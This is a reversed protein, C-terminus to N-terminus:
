PLGLRAIMLTASAPCAGQLQHSAHLAAPACCREVSSFGHQSFFDAAATTLLYLRDIGHSRARAKIADLLQKGLGQGRMRETVALSRLLAVDGYREYRGVCCTAGGTEGVLFDELHDRAGDLPLSSALLLSEIVPWDETVASRYTLLYEM